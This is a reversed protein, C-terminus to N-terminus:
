KQNLYIIKYNQVTLIITVVLNKSFFLFFYLVSMYM